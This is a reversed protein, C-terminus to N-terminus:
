ESNFCSDSQILNDVNLELISFKDNWFVTDSTCSLANAEQTNLFENTYAALLRKGSYTDIVQKDCVSDLLNTVIMGRSVSPRSLYVSALPLGTRMSTAMSLEESSVTGEYMKPLFYVIYRPLPLIADYNKVDIDWQPYNYYDDFLKENFMNLKAPMVRSLHMHMGYAEVIFLASLLVPVVVVYLRKNFVRSFFIVAMFTAVYYFVFAFRGNAAVQWIFPIYNFTFGNDFRTPYGSAFLLLIISSIFFAVNTFGFMRSLEYVQKRFLKFIFVPIFALIFIITALGVYTGIRHWSLSNPINVSLFYDYVSNLISYKPLVVTQWGSRFYTTASLVVRDAFPDCIKIVAMFLMVIFIVSLLLFAKNRNQFFLAIAFLFVLSIAIAGQYAHILFATIILLLMSILIFYGRKSEFYLTLLLMTLPIFISISLAYHGVTLLLFQASMLTIGVSALINVSDVIRNKHFLISYIGATIVSSLLMILNLFAMPKEKVVPFISGVIKLVIVFFPHSDTMFLYDGFPYAMGQHMFFGVNHKIYFAFMYANKLGDNDTALIYKNPHLIIDSYFSMICLLMLLM